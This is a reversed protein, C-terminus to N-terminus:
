GGCGGGFVFGGVDAGDGSAYNATECYDAGYYDAEDPHAEAVTFAAVVSWGRPGGREIGGVVVLLVWWGYLVLGGVGVLPLLMLLGGHGSSISRVTGIVGGFSTELRVGVRLLLGEEGCVVIVRM